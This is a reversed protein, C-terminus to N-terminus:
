LEVAFSTVAGVWTRPRHDIHDSVTWDVKQEVVVHNQKEVLTRAKALMFPEAQCKLEDSILFESVFERVTLHVPDAM